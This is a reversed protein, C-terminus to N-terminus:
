TANVLCRDVPVTVWLPFIVNVVHSPRHRSSRDNSLFPSAHGQAQRRWGRDGGHADRQRAGTDQDDLFVDVQFSHECERDFLGTARRQSARTSGVLRKARQPVNARCEDHQVEFGLAEVSELDSSSELCGRCGAVNRDDRDRAELLLRGLCDPGATGVAEAFWKVEIMEDVAEAGVERALQRQKGNLFIDWNCPTTLLRNNEWFPNSVGDRRSSVNRDPM